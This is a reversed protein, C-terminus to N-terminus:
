KTRKLIIVIAESGKESKFEKPREKENFCFKLNDGDLEYIGFLKKGDGDTLDITKPKKSSDLKFTADKDKADGANIKDGKIVVKFEKVLEAPLDDGGATMKEAQWTGQLKEQDQKDDGACAGGAVLLICALVLWRKSM